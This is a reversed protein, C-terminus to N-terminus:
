GRAGIADNSRWQAPRPARPRTLVRWAKKLERLTARGTAAFSPKAVPSAELRVLAPGHITLMNQDFGIQDLVSPTQCSEFFKLRCQGGAEIRLVDGPAVARAQWILEWRNGGAHYCLVRPRNMIVLCYKRQACVRVTGLTYDTQKGRNPM